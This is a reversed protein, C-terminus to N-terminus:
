GDAGRRCEWSQPLSRAQIVEKTLGLEARRHTQLIRSFGIEERWLAIKRAAASTEASRAKANGYDRVVQMLDRVELSEKHRVSLVRLAQAGVVEESHSLNSKEADALKADATDVGGWFSTSTTVPVSSSNSVAAAGPERAGARQPLSEPRLGLLLDVAASAVYGCPILRLARLLVARSGSLRDVAVMVVMAAAVGAVVVVVVMPVVEVVVVIETQCRMAEDVVRVAAGREQRGVVAAAQVSAPCAAVVVATMSRQTHHPAAPLLYTPFPRMRAALDGGGGKGCRRSFCLEMVLGVM